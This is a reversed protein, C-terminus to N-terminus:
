LQMIFGRGGNTDLRPLEAIVEAILEQRHFLQVKISDSVNSRAWGFARNLSMHEVFGFKSNVPASTPFATAAKQLANSNTTSFLRIVNDLKFVM